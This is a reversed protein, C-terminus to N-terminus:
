GDCGKEAFYLSDRGPGGGIDLVRDGPRVYRDMMHTTLLFEFPHEDLRNWESLPNGNYFTRVKSRSEDM